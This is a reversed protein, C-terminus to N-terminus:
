APPEKKEPLKPEKHLDGVITAIPNNPDPKLTINRAVKIQICLLPEFRLSLDIIINGNTNINTTNIEESYFEVKRTMITSEHSSAFCQHDLSYM